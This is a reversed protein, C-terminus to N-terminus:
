VVNWTGKITTSSAALPVVNFVSPRSASIAGVIRASIPNAFGSSIVPSDNTVSYVNRTHVGSRETRQRILSLFIWPVKEDRLRPKTLAIPHRCKGPEGGFFLLRCSCAAQPPMCKGGGFGLCSKSQWLWIRAARLGPVPSTPIRSLLIGSPFCGVPMVRKMKHLGRCVLSKVLRLVIVQSTARAGGVPHGNPLSATHGILGTAPDLRQHVDALWQQVVQGFRDEQTIRDYAVLAHIAPLTDCPWVSGKYSALFPTPSERLAKAIADCEAALTEKQSQAEVGSLLLIGAQLDAKWAAYFMGHDPPLGPPFPAKGNASELAAIALRAEAIAQSKLQPDRLAAEIWTLGHLVHCFYYGEPFLSQM